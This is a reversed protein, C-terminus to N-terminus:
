NHSYTESLLLPNENVIRLTVSVIWGHAVFARGQPPPTNSASRLLAIGTRLTQKRSMAVRSHIRNPQQMASSTAAGGMGKAGPRNSSAVLGTWYATFRPFGGNVCGKM